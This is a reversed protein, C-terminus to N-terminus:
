LTIVALDADQEPTWAATTPGHHSSLALHGSLLTHPASPHPEWLALVGINGEWAKM